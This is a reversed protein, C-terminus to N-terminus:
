SPEERKGLAIAVSGAVVVMAGAIGLPSIHEPTILTPFWQESIEMAAITVLPTLSVVASVRSAELHALSESFAGYALLTNLGCFLLMGWELGNLSFLGALNSFPLFLLSCGGYILLMVSPSSLKGLLQKQALAYITWAVCALITMANGLLYLSTSQLLSQLQENFFVVMGASIALLGGWQTLTYREKFIAIAALGFMIPSLQMLVEVNTPSTFKLGVLFFLYNLGLFVTAIALLYWSARGILQPSPLKGQGALYIGLAAFAMVFRFGTITYVDLVNLVVALAIPLIGWLVMTAFALALGYGWRGSTHHLEM